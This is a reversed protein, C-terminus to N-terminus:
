RAPVVSAAVAEIQVRVANDDPELFGNANFSRGNALFFIRDIEEPVPSGDPTDTRNHLFRLRYGPYQGVLLPSLCLLQFRGNTAVPEQVQSLIQDKYEDIERGPAEAVALTVGAGSAAVVSVNGDAEVRLSWGNPYQATFRGQPDRYTQGGSFPAPLPGCEAQSPKESLIRRGFQGLLVANAGNDLSHREFRMREFYQVTYARGNELTEVFEESLPYGFQTVGGNGQWYALLDPAVNHGTEAFFTADARAAVPADAARLLRGLQGLQVDNPAAYEPHYELRVREFYQVRYSKGDELTEIREPTLPLGNLALGGHANWYNLFRGTICLGTESFCQGAAAAPRIGGWWPLATLFVLVMMIIRRRM